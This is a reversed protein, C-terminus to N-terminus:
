VEVSRNEMLAKVLFRSLFLNKKIFPMLAAPNKRQDSKYSSNRTIIANFSISCILVFSTFEPGQFGSLSSALLYYLPPFHTLVKKAENKRWILSTHCECSILTLNIHLKVINVELYAASGMEDWKFEAFWLAIQMVLYGVLAIVSRYGLLLLYVNSDISYAVIAVIVVTLVWWITGLLPGPGKKPTIASEM